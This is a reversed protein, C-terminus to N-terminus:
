DFSTENKRQTFGEFKKSKATFVWTKEKEKKKGHIFRFHILDLEVSSVTMIFRHLYLRDALPLSHQGLLTALNCYNM